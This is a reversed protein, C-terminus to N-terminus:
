RICLTGVTATSLAVLFGFKRGKVDAVVNMVFLGVVSGM